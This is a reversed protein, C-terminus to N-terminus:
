KIIDRVTVPFALKLISLVDNEGRPNVCGDAARGTICSM